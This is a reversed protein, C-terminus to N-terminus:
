CVHFTLIFVLGKTPTVRVLPPLGLGTRPASASTSPSTVHKEKKVFHELALKMSARGLLDGNETPSSYGSSRLYERSLGM